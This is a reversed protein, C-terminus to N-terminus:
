ILTGSLPAGWKTPLSMPLSHELGPHNSHPCPLFFAQPFESPPPWLSGVIRPASASVQIIFLTEWTFHPLLSSLHTCSLIFSPGSFAPGGVGLKSSRAKDLPLQPAM